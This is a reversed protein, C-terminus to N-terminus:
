WYIRYMTSFCTTPGSTNMSICAHLRVSTFLIRILM